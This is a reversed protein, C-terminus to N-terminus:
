HHSVKDYQNNKVKEIEIGIENETGTRAEIGIGTEIETEIVTTIIEIEVTEETINEIMKQDGKMTVHDAGQAHPVVVIIIPTKTEEDVEIM